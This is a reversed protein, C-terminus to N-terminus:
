QTGPVIKWGYLLWDASHQQLKQLDSDSYCSIKYKFGETLYNRKFLTSVHIKSQIHTRLNIKLSERCQIFIFPLNRHLRHPMYVTYYKELFQDRISTFTGLVIDSPNSSLHTLSACITQLLLAFEGLVHFLEDKRLGNYLVLWETNGHNFFDLVYANLRLQKGLFDETRLTGFPLANLGSQLTSLDANCIVRDDFGGIAICPSRSQVGLRTNDLHLHLPLPLSDSNSVTESPIKSISGKGEPFSLTSLPLWSEKKGSTTGQLRTQSHSHIVSNLIDFCTKDHEKLLDNMSDDLEPLVLDCPTESRRLTERLEEFKKVHHRHMSKRGFIHALLIVIGRFDRNSCLRLIHPSALFRCLVLNAPEEFYLHNAIGALGQPIGQLDILGMSLLLQLSCRAHLEVLELRDERQHVFLSDKFVQTVCEFDLAAIPPIPLTSEDVIVVNEELVMGEDIEHTDTDDDDDWSNLPNKSPMQKKHNAIRKDGVHAKIRKTNLSAFSLARLIWTVNLSFHGQIPSLRSGQLFRIRHSPMGWFVVRGLPDYGRRGSRGSMQRYMLPTLHPSDGAFVVTKCPMNIGMALSGTAFVVKLHGSRFLREVTQRYKKDMGSHHVGIGRRLANILVSNSFWSELDDLDLDKNYALGSQDRHFDPHIPEEEFDEDENRPESMKSRLKDLKKQKKQQRDQYAKLDREYKALALKGKESNKWAADETEFHKVLIEAMKECFNREFNFFLAPLWGQAHLGSVLSLVSCKLLQKLDDDWRENICDLDALVTGSLKVLIEDCVAPMHRCWQSFVAKLDSEFRRCQKQDIVSGEKFYIEPKLELLADIDEQLINSDNSAEISSSALSSYPSSKTAYPLIHKEMALYLQLCEKATLNTSPITDSRFLASHLGTWPHMPRLETTWVLRDEPGTKWHHLLAVYTYLDSYRYEHQIFRFPPLDTQPLTAAEQVPPSPSIVPSGTKAIQKQKQLAWKDAGSLKKTTTDQHRTASAAVVSSDPRFLAKQAALRNLWQQFIQAQGITASLAIFPCPALPLIREWVAGEDSEISHVEDFVIWSLRKRWPNPSLELERSLLLIELCQPVTILIRSETPNVRYDRTFVGVLFSGPALKSVFEDRFEGYVEALTQQVLAKTPAIYVLIGDPTELTRRMAHYAMFSKGASTPAVVLCNQRSDISNLVEVQWSDMLKGKVRPDNVAGVDRAMWPGMHELQFRTSSYITTKEEEFMSSNKKNNKQEAILNELKLQGLCQDILVGCDFYPAIPRYNALRLCCHVIMSKCQSLLEETHQHKILREHEEMSSLFTRENSSSVTLSNSSASQSSVFDMGKHLASLWALNIRLVHVLYHYRGCATNCSFSALKSIRIQHDHGKSWMAVLSDVQVKEMRGEEQLRRDSKERQIQVWLDADVNKPPMEAANPVDSKSTWTTSPKKSDSAASKKGKQNNKSSSLSSSSSSSSSSSDNQNTPPTSAMMVIPQLSMSQNPRAKLSEYQQWWARTLKEYERPGRFSKEDFDMLQPGSDLHKGSHWHYDDFFRKQLGALEQFKALHGDHIIPRWSPMINDMLPSRVPLIPIDQKIVEEADMLDGSKGYNKIKWFPKSIPFFSSLSTPFTESNLGEHVETAMELKPRLVIDSWLANLQNTIASDLGLSLATLVFDPNSANAAFIEQIYHAIAIMYRSDILDVLDWKFLTLYSSHHSIHDVLLHLIRCFKDLHKNFPNESDKELSQARPRSLLHCHDMMVVHLLFLKSFDQDEDSAAGSLLQLRFGVAAVISRWQCSTRITSYMPGSCIEDILQISDRFHPFFFNPLFKKLQPIAKNEETNEIMSSFDEYFESELVCLKENMLIVDRNKLPEVCFTLISRPTAQIAAISALGIGNALANLGLCVLSHCALSGGDFLLFSPRHFCIMKKWEKSHWHTFREIKLAPCSSILHQILSARYLLLSQPSCAGHGFSRTFCLKNVEFFVIRFNLGHDLLIQLQKEILFTLQLFHACSGSWNLLRHDTLTLLLSDGDLLFFDSASAM